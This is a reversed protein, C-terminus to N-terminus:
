YLLFNYKNVSDFVSTFLKKTISLFVVNIETKDFLVLVNLQIVTQILDWKRIRIEIIGCAKNLGALIIKSCHVSWHEISSNRKPSRIATHKMAYFITTNKIRESLDSKIFGHWLLELNWVHDIFFEESTMNGCAIRFSQRSAALDKPFTGLRASQQRFFQAGANYPVIPAPPIIVRFYLYIYVFYIFCNLESGENQDVLSLMPTGLYRPSCTMQGPSTFLSRRSRCM